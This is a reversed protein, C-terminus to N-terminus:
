EAVDIAASRWNNWVWGGLVIAYYGLLVRLPFPPLQVAAYSMNAVLRERSRSPWCLPMGKPLNM